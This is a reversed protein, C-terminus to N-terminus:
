GLILDVLSLAKTEWPLYYPDPIPQPNYRAGTIWGYSKMDSAPDFPKGARIAQKCTDWHASGNPNTIIWRGKERKWAAPLNCRKCIAM